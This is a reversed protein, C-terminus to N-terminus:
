GVPVTVCFVTHGPASELLELKGDHAEAIRRAIALGLGAGSTHSTEQRTRAADVRFFREFVRERAEVPASGHLQDEVRDAMWLLAIQRLAGLKELRFMQALAADVREPPFVSRFLM